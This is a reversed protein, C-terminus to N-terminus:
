RGTRARWATWQEPTDLDTTARKGPLCLHGVQESALLARAGADGTVRALAPLLRAPVIVPHGPRGGADTARWAKDPAAAFRAALALLDRTELEPLDALLIMLGPAALAQAWQAGARLSASM